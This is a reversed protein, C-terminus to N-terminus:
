SNTAASRFAIKIQFCSKITHIENKPEFVTQYYNFLQNLCESVNENNNEHIINTENSIDMPENQTNNNSISNFLNLNNKDTSVNNNNILSKPKTSGM